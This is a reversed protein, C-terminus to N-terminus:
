VMGWSAAGSQSLQGYWQQRYRAYPGTWLPEWWSRNAQYWEVTQKLGEELSIQPEWGLDRIKDWRLAYRRDHGPRDPVSSLLTRPKRLLQLIHEVMERNEQEIGSSVHYVQGPQGVRCLLWLARCLDEVFLWQRRQTGDGYLPILEDHLACLISMPVLKEPFQSPGYVNCSRVILTSLGYTRGYSQVFSDAAAKSAAYPSSPVIPSGESCEGVLCEGYVEDTSMQVFRSLRLRRAIELLVVTGRVNAEVFPHVDLISRDVHTQAALNVITDVAYTRCVYEVLEANEIHGRVFSCRQDGQWQEVNCHQGAYALADVVVVQVDTHRLLYRVFNTGIFGAGGTILLSQPNEREGM